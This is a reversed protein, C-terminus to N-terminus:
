LLNQLSTVMTVYRDLTTSMDTGPKERIVATGSVYQVYRDEAASDSDGSQSPTADDM